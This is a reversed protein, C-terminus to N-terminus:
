LELRKLIDLLIGDRLGNNGIDSKVEIRDSTPYWKLILHCVDREHPESRDEGAGIQMRLFTEILSYQSRKNVDGFIKFNNEKLNYEIEMTLHDLHM